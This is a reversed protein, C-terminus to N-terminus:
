LEMQYHIINCEEFQEGVKKFGFKEYLTVAGLQAHLYKTKGVAAPNNAIDELVANVLNYGVGKGRCEKLVAFRELKIGNATYRWRATGCAKGQEDTAIFHTSTDEFEDYEDKPNVQQEVVFVAERIKFISKLEQETQVVKVNM